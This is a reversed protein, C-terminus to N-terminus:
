KEKIKKSQAEKELAEIGAKLAEAERTDHFGGGRAQVHRLRRRLIQILENVPRPMKVERTCPWAGGADRYHDCYM